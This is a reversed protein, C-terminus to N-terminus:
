AGRPGKRLHGERARTCVGVWGWGGARAATGGAIMDCVSQAKTVMRVTTKARASRASMRSGRPARTCTVLRHTIMSANQRAARSRRRQRENTRHTRHCGPNHARLTHTPVANRIKHLTKYLNLAPRQLTNTCILGRSVVFGRKGWSAVAYRRREGSDPPVILPAALGCTEPKM